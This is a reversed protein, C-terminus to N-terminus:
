PAIGMHALVESTTVVEAFEQDLNIASIRALEDASVVEGLRSTRDFTHTADIVFRTNFGLNGAMRATTECCHNTTIGCITVARIGASRLWAALDPTGLFSSNVSKVVLLDHPGDIGDKFENGPRGPTLPSGPTTSDHRVLVIPQGTSRWASLLLRINDDCDPNNRPGWVPDDFGRQVDVVILANPERQADLTSRQSAQEPAFDVSHSSV